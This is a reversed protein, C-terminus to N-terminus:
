EVEEDTDPEEVSVETPDLSMSQGVEVRKADLATAIRESMEDAFGKEASTTKGNMVDDVISEINSM